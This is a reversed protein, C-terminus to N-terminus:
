LLSQKEGAMNDMLCIRSNDRYHSSVKVMTQHQRTELLSRVNPPMVWNINYRNLCLEWCQRAVKCHILRHNDTELEDECMDCRKSLFLVDETFKDQTLCVENAAGVWLM